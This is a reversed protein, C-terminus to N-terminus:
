IGFHFTIDRFNISIRDELKYDIKEFNRKYLEM